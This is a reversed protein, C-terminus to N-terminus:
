VDKVSNSNPLLNHFIYCNSKEKDILILDQFVGRNFSNPLQGVWWIRLSPVLGDRNIEETATANMRGEKDTEYKHLENSRELARPHSGRSRFSPSSCLRVM